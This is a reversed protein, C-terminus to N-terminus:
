IKEPRMPKPLAIRSFFDAFKRAFEERYPTKICALRHQKINLIKNLPVSYTSTFDVYSEPIGLAENSPLPFMYGKTHYQNLFNRIMGVDNKLDGKNLQPMWKRIIERISEGYNSATTHSLCSSLEYCKGVFEHITMNNNQTQFPLKETKCTNELTIIPLITAWPLSPKDQGSIDCTQTAIIFYPFLRAAVVVMEHQGDPTERFPDTHFETRTVINLLNELETQSFIGAERNGEFFLSGHQGDKTRFIRKNEDASPAVIDIRFIDGQELNDNESPQCYYGNEGSTTM